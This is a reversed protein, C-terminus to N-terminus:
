RRDPLSMDSSCWGRLVTCLVLHRISKTDCERAQEVHEVAEMCGLVDDKHHRGVIGLREIRRKQTRASNVVFKEYAFRCHRLLDLEVAPKKRFCGSVFGLPECFPMCRLRHCLELADKQTKFMYFIIRDGTSSLSPPFREIPSHTVCLLM